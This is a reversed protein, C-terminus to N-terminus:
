GWGEGGVRTPPGCVGGGGGGGGCGIADDNGGAALGLQVLLVRPVSVVSAHFPLSVPPRLWACQLFRPRQLHQVPPMLQQHDVLYTFTPSSPLSPLLSLQLSSSPSVSSPSPFSFTRYVGLDATAAWVKKM